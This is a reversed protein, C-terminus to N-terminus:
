DEPATDPPLSEGPATAAPTESAEPEPSTYGIYLLDHIPRTSRSKSNQIAGNFYLAATEGGDLNFARTMGLDQCLRSLAEMTIGQSSKTRGEVFLFCYHGPGYYGLVARPNTGSVTTNFTTRAQGQEDLLVPGFGIVHWLDERQLLGELDLEQATYTEMVGERTLVCVDRRPDPKQRYWVGNRMCLGTDRFRIFDGSIAAVADFRQAFESVDEVYHYRTFDERTFAGRLRTVDELYIDALFYLIDEKGYKHETDSLQEIFIAADETRYSTETLEPSAGAELFKDAYPRPTSSPSPSPTDTPVPTPTDTPLPSPTVPIEAAVSGSSEEIVPAATPVASPDPTYVAKEACGSALLLLAALGSCLGTRFFRSAPHMYFRGSYLKIEVFYALKSDLNNPLFM